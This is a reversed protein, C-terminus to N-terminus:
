SKQRRHPTVFLSPDCILYKVRITYRNQIGSRRLKRWYRYPGIAAPAKDTHIIQKMTLRATRSVQGGIAASLPSDAAKPGESQDAVGASVASAPQVLLCVAASLCIAGSLPSLISRWM